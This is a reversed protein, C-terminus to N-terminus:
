RRAILWAAAVIAGAILLTSSTAQPKTTTAGNDGNGTVQIIWDGQNLTGMGGGSASGGRADSSASSGMSLKLPPMMGPM